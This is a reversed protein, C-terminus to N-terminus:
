FQLLLMIKQVRSAATIELATTLIQVEEKAKEEAEKMGNLHRRLKMAEQQVIKMEQLRERHITNLSQDLQAAALFLCVVTVSLFLV